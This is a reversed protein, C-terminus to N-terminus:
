MTTTSHRATLTTRLRHSQTPSHTHILSHVAHRYRASMLNYLLPNVAASLYFLFSSVLNFYQSVYYLFYGSSDHHIYTSNFHTNDGYQDSPTVAYTNTDAGPPADNESHMCISTKNQKKHANTDHIQTNTDRSDSFKGLPPNVHAPGNYIETHTDMEIGPDSNHTIMDTNRHQGRTHSIFHSYLHKGTSMDDVGAGVKSHIETGTEILHTEVDGQTNACVDCFIKDGDKEARTAMHRTESLTELHSNADSHSCPTTVTHTNIDGDTSYSPINFDLHSNPDM